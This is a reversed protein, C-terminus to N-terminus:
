GLIEWPRMMQTSLSHASAGPYAGIGELRPALTLVGAKGEVGSLWADLGVPSPM